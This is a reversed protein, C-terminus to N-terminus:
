IGPSTPMEGGLQRAAGLLTPLGACGLGIRRHLRIARERLVAWRKVHIRRAGSVGRALANVLCRYGALKGQQAHM